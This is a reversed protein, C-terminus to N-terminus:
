HGWWLLVDTNALREETLGHEHEDLTATEVSLGPVSQLHSAIAGHIGNPYLNAVVENQKEHRNENWVIVRINDHMGNLEYSSLERGKSLVCNTMATVYSAM